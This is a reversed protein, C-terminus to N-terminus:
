GAERQLGRRQRPTFRHLKLTDGLHVYVTGGEIMHRVKGVTVWTQLTKYPRDYTDEFYTLTCYLRGRNDTTLDETM